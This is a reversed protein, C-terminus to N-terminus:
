HNWVSAQSESFLGQPMTRGKPRPGGSVTSGLTMMLCLCEGPQSGPAATAKHKEVSVDLQHELIRGPLLSPPQRRQLATGSFCVRHGRITHNKTVDCKSATSRSLCCECDTNVLAAAFYVPSAPVESPRCWICPMCTNLTTTGAWLKHGQLKALLKDGWHCSEPQHVLSPTELAPGLSRSYCWSRTSSPRKHKQPLTLTPCGQEGQRAQSIFSQYSHTNENVHLYYRGM